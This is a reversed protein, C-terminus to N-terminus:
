PLSGRLRNVSDRWRTPIEPEPKPPPSEKTKVLHRRNRRYVSGQLDLRSWLILTCSAQSGHSEEVIEAQQNTVAEHAGHWWTTSWRVRTGRNYYSTNNIQREKKWSTRRAKWLRPNFCPELQQSSQQCDNFQGPELISASPRNRWDLIALYPDQGSAKAKTLLRKASKVANPVRADMFLAFSNCCSAILRSLWCYNNHWSDSGHNIVM